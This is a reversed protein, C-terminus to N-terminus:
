SDRRNTDKCYVIRTKTPHLALGCSVFRAKLSAQLAEAERRTRCHCILRTASPVRVGRGEWFRVQSERRM